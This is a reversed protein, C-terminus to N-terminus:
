LDNVTIDTIYPTDEQDLARYRADKQEINEIQHKILLQYVPEMRYGSLVVQHSSFGVIICNKEEGPDFQVNVLYAYSFAHQSGDQWIFNVSKFTERKTNDRGSLTDPTMGKGEEKIGKEFEDIYDDIRSRFKSTTDM